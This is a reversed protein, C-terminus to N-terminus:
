SLVCCESAREVYAIPEAIGIKRMGIKRMRFPIRAARRFSSRGTHSVHTKM